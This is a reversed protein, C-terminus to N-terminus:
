FVSSETFRVFMSRVNTVKGQPALQVAYIYPHYKMLRKATNDFDMIQWNNGDALVIELASAVGYIEEIDKEMSVARNQANLVARNHKESQIAQWIDHMVLGYIAMALVFIGAVIKLKNRIAWNDWAM